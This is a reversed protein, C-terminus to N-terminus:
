QVQVALLKQRKIERNMYAIAFRIKRATQNGNKIRRDKEGSKTKIEKIMDTFPKYTDMNDKFEKMVANFNKPILITVIEHESSM